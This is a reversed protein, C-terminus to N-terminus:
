LQVPGLDDTGDGLSGSPSDGRLVQIMRRYEETTIEGRALREKLIKRWSDRPQEVGYPQSRRSHGHMHHSGCGM